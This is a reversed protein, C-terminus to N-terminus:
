VRAGRTAAGIRVGRGTAESGTFSIADVGADEVLAAGTPGAGPLLNVAGAPLGAEAVIRILAAATATAHESPKWVVANGFAIAPAIKWAPIAIPFNWPTIAGIVGVPEYAVEVSVGPRVSDFREGTIRLAEGAFFRFLRSARMVEGAADNITKGTERTILAALDGSQAALAAGIRDLADARAEIPALGGLAERAAAAAEAVLGAGSEPLRAVVEAPDAPNRQELTPALGRLKGDIFPVIDLPM